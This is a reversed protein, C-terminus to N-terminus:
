SKIIEIYTKFFYFQKNKGYFCTSNSNFRFIYAIDQKIDRSM